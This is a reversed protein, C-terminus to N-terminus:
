QYHYKLETNLRITYTKQTKFTKQIFKLQFEDIEVNSISNFKDFDDFFMSLSIKILYSIWHKTQNYTKQTKFTKPIFKLQFEGIKVKSISYFKDLHDFVISLSLTKRSTM